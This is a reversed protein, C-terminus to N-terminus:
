KQRDAFFYTREILLIKIILLTMSIKERKKKKNDKEVNAKSDKSMAKLSMKALPLEKKGETIFEEFSKM